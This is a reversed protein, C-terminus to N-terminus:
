NEYKKREHATAKRASIIRTVADSERYCHCVMLLKSSESYGLLVFREEENSHEEDDYIQAREDGFATTAEWFTIGHKKENIKSKKEDWDFLMDLFEIM